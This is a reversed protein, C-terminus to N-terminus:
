LSQCSASTDLAYGHMMLIPAGLGENFKPCFDCGEPFSSAKSASATEHVDMVHGLKSSFSTGIRIVFPYWTYAPISTLGQPLLRNEISFDSSLPGEHDAIKVPILFFDNDVEAEDKGAVIIPKEM